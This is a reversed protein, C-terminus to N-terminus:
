HSPNFFDATKLIMKIKNFVEGTKRLDKMNRRDLIRQIGLGTFRTLGTWFEEAM